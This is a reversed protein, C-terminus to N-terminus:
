SAWPTSCSMFTVSLGLKGLRPLRRMQYITRNPEIPTLQNASNVLNLVCIFSPHYPGIIPSDVLSVIISHLKSPLVDKALDDNDVKKAV